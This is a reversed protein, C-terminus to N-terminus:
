AGVIRRAEGRVALPERVQRQLPRSELRVSLPQQQQAPLVSFCFTPSRRFHRGPPGEGDPGVRPARVRLADVRDNLVAPSLVNLPDVRGGETMGDGNPPPPPPPPTPPHPPPPLSCCRALSAPRDRPPTGAGSCCAARRPTPM